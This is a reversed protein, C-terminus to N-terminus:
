SGSQLRSVYEGSRTDIRITEGQEIFLPVKVEYGTETTANKSGGSVTDGKANPDCEIIKLAVFNEPTVSVPRGNFMVVDVLAGDTLWYKNKGLIEEDISMQEYTSEDMFHWGEHDSYLLRMSVDMVDAVDLSASSPYTKQIVRGTLLNRLKMRNFAPGKGPKVHENDIVDHPAGDIMVKAGSKFQNVQGMSHSWYIIM